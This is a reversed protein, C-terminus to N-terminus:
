HHAMGTYPATRYPAIKTRNPQSWGEGTYLASAGEYKLIGTLTKFPNSGYRLGHARAMLRTRVVDLPFCVM